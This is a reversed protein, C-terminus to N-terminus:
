LLYHLVGVGHGGGIRGVFQEMGDAVMGRPALAVVEVEDVGVGSDAGEGAHTEAGVVAPGVGEVGHVQGAPRTANM